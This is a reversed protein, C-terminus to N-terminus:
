SADKQGPWREPEALAAVLADREIMMSGAMEEVPKDLDILGYTVTADRITRLVNELRACLWLAEGRTIPYVLVRSARAKITELRKEVECIQEFVDTVTM